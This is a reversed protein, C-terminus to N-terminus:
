LEKGFYNESPRQYLNTIPLFRESRIGDLGIVRVRKGSKSFGLPKVVSWREKERHNLTWLWNQEDIAKQITQMRKEFLTIKKGSPIEIYEDIEVDLMRGEFEYHLDLLTSYGGFSKNKSKIILDLELIEQWLTSLLSHPNYSEKFIYELESKNRLSSYKMGKIPMLYHTECIDKLNELEEFLYVGEKEYIMMDIYGFLPCTFGTERKDRYIIFNDSTAQTYPLIEIAGSSHLFDDVAFELERSHWAKNGGKLNPWGRKQLVEDLQHRLPVAIDCNEKLYNRVEPFLWSYDLYAKIVNYGEQKLYDALYFLFSHGSCFIVYKTDLTLDHHYTTIKSIRKQLEFDKSFNKFLLQDTQQLLNDKLNINGKQEDLISQIIELKNNSNLFTVEEQQYTTQREMQLVNKLREQRKELELKNEQQNIIDLNYNGEMNFTQLLKKDLNEQQEEEKNFYDNQNRKLQQNQLLNKEQKLENQKQQQSLNLNNQEQQLPNLTNNCQESEGLNNQLESDVKTISKQNMNQSQLENSLNQIDQSMPLRNSFTNGLLIVLLERVRKELYLNNSNDNLLDKENRLENLLYNLREFEKENLLNKNEDNSLIQQSSNNFQNLCQKQQQSCIELSNTDVIQNSVQTVEQMQKVQVQPVLETNVWTNDGEKVQWLKYYDNYTKRKASSQQGIFQQRNFWTILSGYEQELKKIEGGYYIIHLPNLKQIVKQIGKLFWDQSEPNKAYDSADMCSISLLSKQPLGAWYFNWQEDDNPPIHVNPIVIVQGYFVWTAAVWQRLFHSWRQINYNWYPYHSFDPQIIHHYKKVADIYKRPSTAIASFKEDDMYFHVTGNYDKQSPKWPILREVNPNVAPLLPMGYELDYTLNADTYQHYKHQRYSM